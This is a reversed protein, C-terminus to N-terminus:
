RAIFITTKGDSSRGRNTLIQVTAEGDPLTSPLPVAIQYLGAAVLYAKLNTVQIGGIQMEFGITTELLGSPTQGEPTAPSTPGMGNVYLLVTEGPKAPTAVGPYEGAPAILSYDRHTAIAYNRGKDAGWAFPAPAAPGLTINAPVAAIGNLLLQLSTNGEPLTAPLLVNVQDPSVYEIYASQGGVKVQVRDLQTPLATGTFDAATWVRTTTALNTGRLAVWTNPALQPSFDAANVVSAVSAPPAGTWLYDPLKTYDLLTQWTTGANTTKWVHGGAGSMYVVARDKPDFVIRSPLTKKDAPDTIDAPLTGWPKWTAGADNSEFLTRAPPGANGQWTFGLMHNGTPDLPDYNVVDLYRSSPKFTLGFDTTFYNLPTFEGPAQTILYINTSKLPASWGLIVPSYNTPLSTVRQWTLGGDSSRMLGLQSAPDAQRGTANRAAAYTSVLLAKPNATDIFIGTAGVFPVLGTPLETWTNGGDSTKYVVGKTVFIKNPDAESYSAPAASTGYYFVKSDGPQFVGASTTYTNMWPQIFQHFSKGADLSEFIGGAMSNTSTLTGNTGSNMLLIRNSNSLDVFAAPAEGYCPSNPDSQRGYAKIGNTLIAWTKGGDTSKFFGKYEVNVYMTQTNNPDVTFTHDTRYWQENNPPSCNRTNGPEVIDPNGQALATAVTLLLLLLVSM